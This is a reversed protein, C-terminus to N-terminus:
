YIYRGTYNGRDTVYSLIQGDGDANSLFTPDLLTWEGAAAPIVGGLVGAAACWVEVWAHYVEGSDGVVLRAPIGQSRLMACLLSAYDFCIGRGSELVADLDPLYGPDVTEAKDEDYTLAAMVYSFLVDTKAVDSDQGATLEGALVVVASDPGYNVFQNPELFPGFPDALELTLERTYVPQYRTGEIQELVTLTYEGDGQTLAFSEWAGTNDLDYNYPEGGEKVIRVKVRGPAAGTYRVSVVGREMGSEDVQAAAPVPTPTPAPTAVPTPTPRSQRVPGCGTLFLVLALVAGWLRERRKVREGGKEKERIM